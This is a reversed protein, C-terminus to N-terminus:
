KKSAGQIQDIKDSVYMQGGQEDFRGDARANALLFQYLEIVLKTRALATPQYIHISLARSVLQDALALAGSDVTAAQRSPQGSGNALWQLRVNAMRAIQDARSLSPESGRLYKRILSESLGVRRAFASITEDQLLYRLRDAFSTQQFDPESLNGPGQQNM